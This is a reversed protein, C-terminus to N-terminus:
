SSVSLPQLQATIVRHTVMRSPLEEEHASSSQPLHPLPFTPFTPASTTGRPQSIPKNSRFSREATLGLLGLRHHGQCREAVFGWLPYGFSSWPPVACVRLASTGRFSTSTCVCSWDAGWGRELLPRLFGRSLTSVPVQSLVGSFYRGCSWLTILGLVAQDLVPNFMFFCTVVLQVRRCAWRGWIGGPFDSYLFSWKSGWAPCTSSM